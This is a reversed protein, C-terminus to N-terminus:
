RVNIKIAKFISFVVAVSSAGDIGSRCVLIMTVYADHMLLKFVVTRQLHAGTHHSVGALRRVHPTRNTKRRLRRAHIWSLCRWM